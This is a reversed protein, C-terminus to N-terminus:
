TVEGENEDGEEDGKSYMVENELKMLHRIGRGGGKYEDGLLLSIEGLHDDIISLTDELIIFDCEYAFSGIYVKMGRIRGVFNCAKSPNSPKPRPKLGYTMIQNYQRRSMINVPSDLDLHAHRVFLHGVMYSIKINNPSGSRIRARVWPPRPNKMLWEHHTLEEITPFSNFEGDNGYDEEEELMEEVEEKTESEDGEEDSEEDIKSSSKMMTEETGQEKVEDRGGATGGINLSYANTFSVDKIISNVFHVHKPSSPNKNLERISAPSLYKLFLLKSPSKVGMKRLEEREDHSIAAVSKLAMHNGANETSTVNNLKESVTKWLLNIKGIM